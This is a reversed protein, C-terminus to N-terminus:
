GTNEPLAQTTQFLFLNKACLGCLVCLYPLFLIQTGAAACGVQM